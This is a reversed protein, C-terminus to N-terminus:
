SGSKLEPKKLREFPIYFIALGLFIMGMGISNIVTIDLSPVFRWKVLKVALALLAGLGIVVKGARQRPTLSAFHKFM